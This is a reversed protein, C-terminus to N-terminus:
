PLRLADAHTKHTPVTCKTLSRGSLASDQGGATCKGFTENGRDDSGIARPPSCQPEASGLKAKGVGFLALPRRQAKDARASPLAGESKASGTGLPATTGLPASRHRAIGLPATRHRATGLPAAWAARHWSHRSHM